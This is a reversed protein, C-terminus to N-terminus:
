IPQVQRLRVTKERLKQARTRLGEIRDNYDPDSPNQERNETSVAAAEEPESIRQQVQPTTSEDHNTHDVIPDATTPATAPHPSSEEDSLPSSPQPDMPPLTNRSYRAHLEDREAISIAANLAALLAIGIPIALTPDFGYDYVVILYIALFLFFLVFRVM